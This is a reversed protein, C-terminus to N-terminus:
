VFTAGNWVFDISDSEPVEFVALTQASAVHILRIKNSSDVYALIRGGLAFAVALWVPINNTQPSKM